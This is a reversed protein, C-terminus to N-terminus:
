SNKLLFGEAYAIASSISASDIHQFEAHMARNRLTVFGRVIKAEPGVIIQAKVLEGIVDTMNLNEVELGKVTAIRKLADELAACALVAAVNLRGDDLAARAMVLFDSLVEGNYRLRLGSILGNQIDYKLSKLAGIAFPMTYGNVKYADIFGTAYSARVKRFDDVRFDGNGYLSGLLSLTGSIVESREIPIDEEAKSLLNDIRSVIGDISDM